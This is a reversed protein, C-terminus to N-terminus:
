EEMYPSIHVQVRLGEEAFVHIVKLQSDYEFSGLSRNGRADALPVLARRRKSSPPSIIISTSSRKSSTSVGSSRPPTPDTVGTEQRQLYESTDERVLISRLERSARIGNGQTSGSYQSSAITTCTYSTDQQSEQVVADKLASNTAQVTSSESRQTTEQTTECESTTGQSDNKEKSYKRVLLVVDRAHGDLDEADPFDWTEEAMRHLEDMSVADEWTRDHHIKKVRPHRLMEFNENQAKEFGSGLIEAVFPTKFAVTM